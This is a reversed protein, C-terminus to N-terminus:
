ILNLLCSERTIISFLHLDKWKRRLDWELPICGIVVDCGEEKRKGADRLMQVTKGTGEAYSFFIKLRGGRDLDM